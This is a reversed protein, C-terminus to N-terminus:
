FNCLVILDYVGKKEYRHLKSIQSRLEEISSEVSSISRDGVFDPVEPYMSDGPLVAIVGNATKIKIPMWRMRRKERLDQKSADNGPLGRKSMEYLEYFQLGTLKVESKANM